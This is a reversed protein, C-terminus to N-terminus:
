RVKGKGVICVKCPNLIYLLKQRRAQGTGIRVYEAFFEKTMPCWM